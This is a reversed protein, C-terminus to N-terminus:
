NNHTSKTLILVCKKKRVKEIYLFLDRNLEILRRENIALYVQGDIIRLCFEFFHSNPLTAIQKERWFVAIKQNKKRALTFQFDGINLDISFEAINEVYFEILFANVNKNIKTDWVENIRKGFIDPHGSLPMFIASLDQAEPTFLSAIKKELFGININM